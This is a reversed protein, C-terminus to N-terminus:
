TTSLFRITIYRSSTTLFGQPTIVAGSSKLILQPLWSNIWQETKHRNIQPSQNQAVFIVKESHPPPHVTPTQEPLKKHAALLSDSSQTIESENPTFLRHVQVHSTLLNNSDNYQQIWNNHPSDSKIIIIVFVFISCSCIMIIFPSSAISFSYICFM